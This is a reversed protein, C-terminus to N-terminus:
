SENIKGLSCRYASLSLIKIELNQLLYICEFVDNYVKGEEKVGILSMGFGMFLKLM